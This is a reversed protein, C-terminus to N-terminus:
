FRYFESHLQTTSLMSSHIQRDCFVLPEKGLVKHDLLAELISINTQYGSGLILAAPKGLVHALQNELEEYFNFNGSVLRSSSTGVGYKKAYETCRSILLPHNSLGLYDSSSFNLLTKGQIKVHTSSFGQIFELSKLHRPYQNTQIFQQYQKEVM